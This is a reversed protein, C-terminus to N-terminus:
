TIWAQPNAEWVRKMTRLREAAAPSDAGPTEIARLAAEAEGPDAAEVLLQMLAVNPPLEGRACRELPGRLREPCPERDAEGRPEAADMSARRPGVSPAAGTGATSRAGNTNTPKPAACSISSGRGRASPRRSRM